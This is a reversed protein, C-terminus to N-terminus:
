RRARRGDGPWEDPSDSDVTELSRHPRRDGVAGGDCCNGQHEDDGCEHKATNGVLRANGRLQHVRQDAGDSSHREPIPKHHDFASSKVKFDAVNLKQAMDFGYGCDRHHIPGCNLDATSM